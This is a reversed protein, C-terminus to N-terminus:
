IRLESINKKLQLIRIRPQCRGSGFFQYCYCAICDLYLTTYAYRSDLSSPLCNTYYRIAYKILLSVSATRWDLPRIKLSCILVFRSSVWELFVTSHNINCQLSRRWLPLRDLHKKHLLDLLLRLFLLLFKGTLPVMTWRLEEAFCILIINVSISSIRLKRILKM